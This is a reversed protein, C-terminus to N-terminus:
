SSNLQIYKQMMSVIVIMKNLLEEKQREKKREEERFIYNMLITLSDHLVYRKSPYVAM